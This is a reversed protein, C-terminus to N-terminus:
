PWIEGQDKVKCGEFWLWIAEKKVLKTCDIEGNAGIERLNRHVVRCNVLNSMFCVQVCNKQLDFPSSHTGRKTIASSCRIKPKSRVFM